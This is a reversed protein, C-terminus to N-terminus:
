NVVYIRFLPHTDKCEVDLCQKKRREINKWTETKRGGTTEVNLREFNRQEVNLMEVKVIHIVHVTHTHSITM